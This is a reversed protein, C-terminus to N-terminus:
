TGEALFPVPHAPLASGSPDSNRRSRHSLARRLCRAIELGQWANSAPAPFCLAQTLFTLFTPFTSLTM